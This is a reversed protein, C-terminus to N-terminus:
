RGRMSMVAGQNANAEAAVSTRGAKRTERDDNQICCEDHKICYEDIKICLEDNEICLEDNKICFRM